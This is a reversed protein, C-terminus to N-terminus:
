KELHIYHIQISQNDTKRGNLFELKKWFYKIWTSLFVHLTSTRNWKQYSNLKRNLITSTMALVRIYRSYVPGLWNDALLQPFIHTLMVGYHYEHTPRCVFKASIASNCQRAFHVIIWACIREMMLPCCMRLGVYIPTSHKLVLAGHYSCLVFHREFWLTPKVLLLGCFQSFRKATTPVSGVCFRPSPVTGSHVPPRSDPYRFSFM